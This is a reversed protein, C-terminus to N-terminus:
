GATAPQRLFRTVGAADTVAVDAYLSLTGGDLTEPSANKGEVRVLTPDVADPMVDVDLKGRFFYDLLATSYAVARPLLKRAYAEHIKDDLFWGGFGPPAGTAAELSPHLAGEMVFPRVPAGASEKAFYQRFSGGPQAVFLDPDASRAGLSGVAPHAFRQFVTDKSLYNGNTYEAIGVLATDALGAPNSAKLYAGTDILRAIPVPAGAAPTGSFGFASLDPM